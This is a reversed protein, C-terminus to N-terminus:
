SHFMERWSLLGQRRPFRRPFSRAGRPAQDQPPRGSAPAKRREIIVPIKILELEGLFLVHAPLFKIWQPPDKGYYLFRGWDEDDWEEERPCAQSSADDRDIGGARCLCVLQPGAHLRNGAGIRHHQLVLQVEGDQRAVGKARDGLQLGVDILEQAAEVRIYRRRHVPVHLRRVPPRDHVHLQRGLPNHRCDGGQCAVLSCDAM